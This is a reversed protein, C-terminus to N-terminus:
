KFPFSILQGILAFDHVYKRVSILRIEFWHRIKYETLLVKKERRNMQDGNVM